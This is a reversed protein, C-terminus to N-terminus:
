NQQKTKTDEPSSISMIQLKLDEIDIRVILIQSLLKKSELINKQYTKQIAIPCRGKSQQKNLVSYDDYQKQCKSKKKIEQLTCVDIKNNKLEKPTEEDKNDFSIINMRWICVVDFTKFVVLIEYYISVKSNFCYTEWLINMETQLKRSIM